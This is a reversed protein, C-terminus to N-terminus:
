LINNPIQKKVYIIVREKFIRIIPEKVSYFKEDEKQEYRIHYTFDTNICCNYGTTYGNQEM